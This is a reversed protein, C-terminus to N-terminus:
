TLQEPALLDQIRERRRILTAKSGDVLIEAPRSRSNYNSALSMGYAGADLVAYLDGTAPVPLRRDRGLFDGTECVPGVVDYLATIVDDQSVYAPVIRHYANYLAPRLLDNMAADVIVFKKRGNQKVGLVSTLLIGAAGVLSRGPELLLHSHLNYTASKVAHAYRQIAKIAPVEGTSEYDIGLGGGVDVFPLDLGDSRLERVLAAVKKLALAFPEPSQIQSGIHVSIGIPDLYKDRAIAAYIRRADAIPIGFKHERRGTSIYPHTSALVDPNVRLAVPAVRKHKRAVASLQALEFGSECNFLLIRARLAADLEETTKGVGSFVTKRLAQPCAQRVRELEGASVIDFGAGKEALERLIHLNSNAKVSYCITHPIDRFASDFAQYSERIARASYVYLPTGFRRSLATLLIKECFLEEHGSRTRQYTFGPPRSPFASTM